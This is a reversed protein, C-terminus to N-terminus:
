KLLEKPIESGTWQVIIKHENTQSCINKNIELQERQQKIENLLENSGGEFFSMESKTWLLLSTDCSKNAWEFAANLVEKSRLLKALLILAISQLRAMDEEKSIAISDMLYKKSEQQKSSLFYHFGQVLLAASRTSNAQSKLKMPSIADFLEYFEADCCTYLYILALGLNALTWLEVEKVGKNIAIKFQFKAAEFCKMNTAYIGLLTHLQPGFDNIIRLPERSNNITKFIEIISSLSEKPNQKILYLQVIGENLLMEMSEIFIEMRNEVIKWSDSSKQMLLRIGGLHRKATLYYRHAREFNSFQINCLVTLVYAFGTLMEPNLWYITSTSPTSSKAATEATQVTIHLQRLCQKASKIMGISLFYCLQISYCFARIDNIAIQDKDNAAVTQLIEGLEGVSKGLEQQDTMQISLILSKVLRFYCDIILGGSTGSFQVGANVAELARDFEGLRLQAESYIFLLKVHVQPHRSSDPLEAKCVELCEIYHREALLLEALMSSAKLRESELSSGLQRMTRLAEELHFRAMDLNRTYLWLLKGLEYSCLAFIEVSCPVRLATMCCKIAMKYRNTLRFTEAMAMLSIAAQNTDVGPPPDVRSLEQFQTM